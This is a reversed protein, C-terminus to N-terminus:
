LRWCARHLHLRRLTHRDLRPGAVDARTAQCVQLQLRHSSRYAGGGRGMCGWGLWFSVRERKNNDAPAVPLPWRTEALAARPSARRVSCPCPTARRRGTTHMSWRGVRGRAAPRRRRRRCHRKGNLPQPFLM